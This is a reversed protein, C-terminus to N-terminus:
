SAKRRATARREEPHEVAVIQSKRLFVFKKTRPSAYFFETRLEVLTEGSEIRYRDGSSMVIFFPVFPERKKLDLITHVLNTAEPEKPM